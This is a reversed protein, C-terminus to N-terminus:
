CERRWLSSGFCCGWLQMKFHTVMPFCHFDDVFLICALQSPERRYDWGSLLCILLILTWPWGLCFVYSLLPSTAHSL